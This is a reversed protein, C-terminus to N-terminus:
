PMIIGVMWIHFNTCLCIYQIRIFRQLTWGEFTKTVNLHKYEGFHHHIKTIETTRTEEM